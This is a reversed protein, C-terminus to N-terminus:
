NKKGNINGGNKEKIEYIAKEKDKRGVMAKDPTKYLKMWNLVYEQAKKTNYRVRVRNDSVMEQITVDICQHPNGKAAM